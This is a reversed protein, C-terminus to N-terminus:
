GHKFLLSKLGKRIDRKFFAYALPNIASNLVAIPIKYYLDNCPEPNNFILVFSCRFAIASYLLYLGIVIAMMKVASRDQTKNLLVPHNFRLQRALTREAQYHNCVVRVMSALCVILIVCSPFELLIIYFWNFISIILNLKMSLWLIFELLYSVVPIAWSISIIQIVRRRKMFTLYKLPKAVAMYRDLVLSCLNIVSAHAFLGRIFAIGNSLRGQPNCWSAMECLFLSPVAIMGVCFDAVALSVIFANTKTRLQRKRYVIFIVFGNGTMTLISLSWGFIWFWTEMKWSCQTFLNKDQHNLVHIEFSHFLKIGAQKHM